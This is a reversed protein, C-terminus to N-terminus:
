KAKTYKARSIHNAREADKKFENKIKLLRLLQWKSKRPRSKSRQKRRRQSEKDLPLTALVDLSNHLLCKLNINKKYIRFNIFIYIKNILFFIYIYYKEFNFICWVNTLM